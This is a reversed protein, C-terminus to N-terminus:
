HIMGIIEGVERELMLNPMIDNIIQYKEKQLAHILTWKRERLTIFENDSLDYESLDLDYLIECFQIIKIIHEMDTGFEFSISCDDRLLSFADYQKLKKM